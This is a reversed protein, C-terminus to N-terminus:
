KVNNDPETRSADDLLSDLESLKAKTRYASEHALEFLKRVPLEDPVAGTYKVSHLTNGKSDDVYFFGDTVGIVYDGLRSEFIFDNEGVDQWVLKSNQTLALVKLFISRIVADDVFAM